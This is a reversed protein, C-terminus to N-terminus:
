KALGISEALYMDIQSTIFNKPPLFTATYAHLPEESILMGGSHVSLHHPFNNILRGYQLILSHIHDQKEHKIFNNIRSEGYYYGKEGLEDVESKPLGFVKGLERTIANFQFTSYSGVLAVHDEGYRKFIYDIVEDRDLWSFDIDFDPPSTRYPNLFREFYLDLEIPDVDTIRLCYAVISNAGSGRGVYYFGRSQAYRIIDWTMLFYSNFGLSNIIDLEKDVRERAATNHLAYRAQLGDLALKRLLHADDRKRASFTKKNKDTGFDMTIDCADMLRYTNTVISPYQKFAELIKNQSLFFENTGCFTAMPLRSLLENKDVARLLRHVNYHRKDQFTVPQQVVLKEKYAHDKWSFLKNVEVPQVGIFENVLLEGPLKSQMPYIVFGDAPDIFFHESSSQEPFPKDAQIYKSLFRNIWTFGRNNAAILIYLLKDGNRIEAGLIPKINQQQCLLVFDWADCTSNINTLALATAGAEVAAEVLAETSYTGWRFSFYTKCNLYM